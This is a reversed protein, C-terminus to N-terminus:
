PAISIPSPKVAPEALAVAFLDPHDIIGNKADRHAAGFGPQTDGPFMVLERVVHRIHFTEHKVVRVM